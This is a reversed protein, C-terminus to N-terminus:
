EWLTTQFEPGALARLVYPGQATDRVRVLLDGVKDGNVDALACSAAGALTTTPSLADKGPRTWAEILPGMPTDKPPESLTWAAASPVALVLALLAVFLRIAFM